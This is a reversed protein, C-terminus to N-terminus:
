AFYHVWPLLQRILCESTKKQKVILIIVLTHLRNVILIIVLTPLINVILIVVLINM